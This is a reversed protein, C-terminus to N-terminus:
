IMRQWMAAGVMDQLGGDVLVQRIWDRCDETDKAAVRLVGGANGAGGASGGSGSQVAASASASFGARSAHGPMNGLRSFSWVLDLPRSAQFQTSSKSDAMSNLHVLLRELQPGVILMTAYIEYPYMRHSLLSPQRPTEPVEGNKPQPSSADHPSAHNENELVMRESILVEGDPTIVENFSAYRDFEWSESGTNSSLPRGSTFWDLVLLSAEETKQAEEDVLVSTHSQISSSPVVFRQAQSYSSAKYPQVPDPLLVCLSGPELTVHLRQRSEGERSGDKRQADTLPNGRGPISKFVKTSGQTLLVLKGGEGVKADLSIEDGAVLGGGYALM